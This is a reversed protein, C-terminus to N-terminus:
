KRAPASAKHSTDADLWVKRSVFNWVMVVGTAVVKVGVYYPGNAYAVGLATFSLEGAWMICSNLLLGVVSLVFFVIFEHTKSLDERHTFVYRMSALYNFIASVTFSIASAIIPNMGLWEHLAIMIVFDVLTALVGVVGFKVIQALLRNMGFVVKWRKIHVLVMICTRKHM